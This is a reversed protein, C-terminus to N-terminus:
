SVECQVLLGLIKAYWVDFGRPPERGYRRRYEKVAEDLTTSQRDVKEKWARKANAMLTHIPHVEYPQASPNSTAHLYIASRQADTPLFASLSPRNSALVLALGALPLAFLMTRRWSHRRRTPSPPAEHYAKETLLPEEASDLSMDIPVWGTSSPSMTSSPRASQVSSRRYVVTTASMLPVGLKRGVRRTGRRFLTAPKAQGSRRESACEALCAHRPVTQPPSGAPSPSESGANQDLDTKATAICGHAFRAQGTRTHVLKERAYIM